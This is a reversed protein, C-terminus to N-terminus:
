SAAARAPELVHEIIAAVPCNYAAWRYRRLEEATEPPRKVYSRGDAAGAFGEPAMSRCLTCGICSGDVSWATGSERASLERTETMPARAPRATDM